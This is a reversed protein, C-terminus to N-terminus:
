NRLLPSQGFALRISNPIRTPRGTAIEIYGWTTIARAVTGLVSGDESVKVIETARKCKAAFASDIWTRVELRDGRVVPRLYDVEHRRVVFVAGLERYSEFGLGVASSHAIAVEQIWRVYAINSAHGLEDIDGETVELLISYVPPTTSVGPEM